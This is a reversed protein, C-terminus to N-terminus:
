EPKIGVRTVLDRWKALDHEIRAALMEPPGSRTEVGQKLLLAGVERDAVV